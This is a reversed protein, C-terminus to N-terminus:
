ILTLIGLNRVRIKRGIEIQTLNRVRKPLFFFVPTPIGMAAPWVRLAGEVAESRSRLWNCTILISTDDRLITM